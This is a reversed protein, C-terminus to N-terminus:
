KEAKVKYQYPNSNVKSYIAIAFSLFFVVAENGKIQKIWSISVDSVLLRDTDKDTTEVIIFETSNKHKKM